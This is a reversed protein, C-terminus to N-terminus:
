SPQRSIRHDALVLLHARNLDLEADNVVDATEHDICRACSEMLAAVPRKRVFGRYSLSECGSHECVGFVPGVAILGEYIREAARSRDNNLSCPSSAADRGASVTMESIFIEGVDALLRVPSRKLFSKIIFIRFRHVIAIEETRIDIGLSDFRGLAISFCCADTSMCPEPDAICGLHKRIVQLLECAKGSLENYRIRGVAATEHCRLIRSLYIFEYVAVVKCFVTEALLAQPERNDRRLISEFFRCSM